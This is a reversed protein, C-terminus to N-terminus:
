RHAELVGPLTSSPGKRKGARERVPLAITQEGGPFLLVQSPPLTRMRFDLQAQEHGMPHQERWLVVLLPPWGKDMVLTRTVKAHCAPCLSIMLDLESRGPVRHHVALSGKRGGPADCVRCRRGDRDLVAERLGAYHKRDQRRLAYCVACLGHAVMKARGCPCHMRRQAPGRMSLIYDSHPNRTCHTTWLRPPFLKNIGTRPKNSLRGSRRKTELLDSM